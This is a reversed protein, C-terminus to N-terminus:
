IFPIRVWVIQIENSTTIIKFWGWYTYEQLKDTDGPEIFLTFNSSTNILIQDDAGGAGLNKKSFLAIGQKIKRLEFSIQAGTLETYLSQNDMSEYTDIKLRKNSGRELPQFTAIPIELAEHILM